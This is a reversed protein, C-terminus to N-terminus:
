AYNLGKEIIKDIVVARRELSCRTLDRCYASKNQKFDVGNLEEVPKVQQCHMCKATDTSTSM